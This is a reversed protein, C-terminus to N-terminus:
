PTTFDKDKGQPKIKDCAKLSKELAEIAQNKDGMKLANEAKQLLSAIEGQSSPIHDRRIVNIVMGFLIKFSEEKEKELYQEQLIKQAKLLQALAKKHEGKLYLLHAYHICNEALSPNDLKEGKQFYKEAEPLFGLELALTGACTLASPITDIGRCLDKLQNKIKERKYNDVFYSRYKTSSSKVQSLFQYKGLLIGGLFFIGTWLLVGLFLLIKRLKEM